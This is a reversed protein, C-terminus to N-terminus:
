SGWKYSHPPEEEFKRVILFSLPLSQALSSLFPFAELVLPLNSKFMLYRCGVVWTSCHLTVGVLPVNTLRM